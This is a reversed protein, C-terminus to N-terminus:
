GERVSEESRNSALDSSLKPHTERPWAKQSTWNHFRQAIQSYNTLALLPHALADHIFAWACGYHVCANPDLRM